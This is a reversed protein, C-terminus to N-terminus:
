APMVHVLPFKGQVVHSVIDVAMTTVSPVVQVRNAHHVVLVTSDSAVYFVGQVIQWYFKDVIVPVECAIAALQMQMRPRQHARCRALM